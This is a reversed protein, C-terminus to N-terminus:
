GTTLFDLTSGDEVFQYGMTRYGQQRRDWKKLLAPHGTDVIDIIRVDNKAMHERHLRGAYQQLTGKWSIPMALVLTDLPPHDFDEGVLKGTALIIRPADPPLADLESIVAARQKKSLRGHLTCFEQIHLSLANKIMELHDTRETLVHIKRGQEYLEIEKNVISEARDRDGAIHRFLEQIPCDQSVDITM